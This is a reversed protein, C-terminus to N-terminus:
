KRGKLARGAHGDTDRLAGWASRYELDYKRLSETAVPIVLGRDYLHWRVLNARLDIRPSALLSPPAPPAVPASAPDTAPVPVPVPGPDSPSRPSPPDGKCAVVLLLLLARKM